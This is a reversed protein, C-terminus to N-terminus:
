AGDVPISTATGGGGRAELDAVRVRLANVEDRLTDFDKRSVVDIREIAQDMASQAKRMTSRMADKARQADLDGSERVDRLTEDIADKLAALFGTVARVGDRLGEKAQEKGRQWDDGGGTGSGGTGTGTTEM